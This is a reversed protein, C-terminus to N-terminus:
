TRSKEESVVWQRALPKAGGEGAIFSQVVEFKFETM